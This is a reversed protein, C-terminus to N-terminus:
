KAPLDRILLGDAATNWFLKAQDKVQLLQPYDAAGPTSALKAPLSWNAGYDVSRMHMVHTEKGDFERWSLHVNAEQILIAPHGAQANKNGFGMPESLPKGNANLRRYFLGQRKKGQTFWVAHVQNQNDAALAGGRHPCADLSWEDEAVRHIANKGDLRAFAFDRTNKGFVHRWMALPTGQQDVALALRCCECSNDALKQNPGFTRGEDESTAYFVSTGIFSEGKKQRAASERKDLWLLTIKGSPDLLLTDFAHPISTAGDDNITRPAEFSKGGDRSVSFRISGSFPKSLNQTWSVYVRDAVVQIKPRSEGESIISEAEPNVTVPPEFQLGGDNSRTVLVHGNEVRALWIKGKVDSSVSIGIQPKNERMKEWMKQLRTERDGGSTHGEHASAAFSAGLLVIGLLKYILM